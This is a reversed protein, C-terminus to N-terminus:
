YLLLPASEGVESKVEAFVQEEAEGRMMVVAVVCSKCLSVREKVGRNSVFM